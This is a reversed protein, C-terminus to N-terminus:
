QAVKGTARRECEGPKNKIGKCKEEAMIKELTKDDGWVWRFIVYM